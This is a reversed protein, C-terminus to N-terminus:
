AATSNKIWDKLFGIFGIGFVPNVKVIKSEM